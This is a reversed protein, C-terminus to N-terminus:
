GGLARWSEFLMYAAVALILAAFLINLAGRRKALRTGIWSGAVGGGIGGAIFLGAVPWDVLGSLAYSSATSIGFAAVAFLSSAMANVIPMGTAAMLGPVILFGGGIGFFGSLVGASLGFGALKPFNERGLRVTGEGAGHRKRLMLVAVVIMLLAFLALLADGDFRKGFYAGALAGAVGFAAFVSACPWKVLGSRARVALNTLANAAVAVAGTGIALHPSGVGAVYVLLPVALISGGGGVLGLAFGVLGGSALAALIALLSM